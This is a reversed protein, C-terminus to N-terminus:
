PMLAINTKRNQRPDECMEAVCTLHKTVFLQKIGPIDQLFTRRAKDRSTGRDETM